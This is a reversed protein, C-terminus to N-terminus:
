QPLVARVADLINPDLEVGAEQLATVGQEFGALIGPGRRPCRPTEPLQPVVNQIAPAPTEAPASPAADVSRQTPRARCDTSSSCSPW